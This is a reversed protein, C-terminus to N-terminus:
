PLQTRELVYVWAHESDPGTGTGLWRGDARELLRYVSLGPLSTDPCFGFGPHYEALFGKLGGAVFGDGRAVMVGAANGNPTKALLTFRSASSAPWRDLSLLRGEKATSVIPGLTPHVFLARASEVMEGGPGEVRDLPLEFLCVPQGDDCPQDRRYWGVVSGQPVLFWAEDASVARVVPNTGVDYPVGARQQYIRTWAAGDWRDVGADLVAYMVGDAYSIAAAATATDPPPISDTLRGRADVRRLEPGAAGVGSVWPQHDPDWAPVRTFPLTALPAGVLEGREADGEMPMLTVPLYYSQSVGVLVRERGDGEAPFRVLTQAVIQRDPLPLAATRTFVGCPTSRAVRADTIASPWGAAPQEEWASSSTGGPGISRVFARAGSPRPLASGQDSSALPGSVFRLAALTEPYAVAYITAEGDADLAVGLADPDFGADLDIAFWTTGSDVGVGWLLAHAGTIDPLAVREGPSSCGALGCAFLAVSRIRSRTGVRRSYVSSEARARPSAESRAPARM